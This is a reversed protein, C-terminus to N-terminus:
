MDRIHLENRQMLDFIHIQPFFFLLISFCEASLSLTETKEFILLFHFSFSTDHSIYSGTLIM